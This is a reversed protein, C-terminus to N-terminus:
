ALHETRSKLTRALGELDLELEAIRARLVRELDATAASIERRTESRIDARADRIMAEVDYSDVTSM